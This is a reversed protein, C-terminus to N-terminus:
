ADVPSSPLIGTAPAPGHTSSSWRVQVPSDLFQAYRELAAEVERRECSRLPGLPLITVVTRTTTSTKKWTGIVRGSRIITAQFVGNGGPIIAQAHGPDLMLTRNKYGLLYEDFAPLALVTDPVPPLPDALAEPTVLMAVGDVEVTTLANGAAAVATTTDASTLGTWGALDSRPVPGHSRVYRTAITALAEDRSPRHSHRVWEDLLVFAQETGRNPALCTVGRQSAFRLLHYGRQGAASIGAEGLAALCEARTLRGGGALVTGLVDVAREATAVDLGLQARRRAAAALSRAGLVELMWRADASPVLHITGRMPWTRLAERRELADEVQTRTTSPLRAGLSWLGSAYDQAQMAGFWTVVGAVSDAGVPTTASAGTLLLSRLRLALAERATLEVGGHERMAGGSRRDPAAGVRRVLVPLGALDDAQRRHLPTSQGGLM